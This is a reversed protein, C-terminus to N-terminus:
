FIAKFVAPDLFVEQIKVKFALHLFFNLFIKFDGRAQKAKEHQKKTNQLVDM